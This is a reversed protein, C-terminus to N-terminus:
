AWEGRVKELGRVSFQRFGLTEKLIGLVPEVIGKRHRYIADGEPTRVKAKMADRIADDTGRTLQKAKNRPSLCPDKLPCAGCTAREGRYVAISRKQGGGVSEMRDGRYTLEQHAPCQDTHTETDYVFQGKGFLHHGKM